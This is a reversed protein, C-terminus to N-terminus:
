RDDLPVAATRFGPGQPSVEPGRARLALGVGTGTGAASGYALRHPVAPDAVPPEAASRWGAPTPSRRRNRADPWDSTLLGERLKVSARGHVGCESLAVRGM